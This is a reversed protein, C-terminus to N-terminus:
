SIVSLQRCIWPCSVPCPYWSRVVRCSYLWVFSRFIVVSLSRCTCLTYMTCVVYWVDKVNLIQSVLRVLSSDVSLWFRNVSPDRVVVGSSVRVPICGASLDVFSLLCHGVGVYICISCVIIPVYTSFMKSMQSVLTVFLGRVISV